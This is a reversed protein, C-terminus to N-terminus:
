SAVAKLRPRKREYDYIYDRTRPVADLRKTMQIQFVMLGQRRFSVEAGALYIDWMRCFREDYLRRVEDRRANFRERWARLTDAYHLRLIEVDTVLLGAREIAPLVESLAPCYGGPFIYKRIWPSTTAPGDFRGIAHLVAVGDEALLDRVKGFFAGYHPVGVHEFMGVSVIRDYRGTEKRYDQLRFRVRATLGADAARRQAVDFQETSLTLGDVQVGSERALSLALGGWGSGIDLVKQGPRLLLKAALHRKKAEQAEELTMDPRAFYACSYQRDADLFLEYLRGSLDYHHAVNRRSRGQRNWQQIRRAGRQTAAALRGLRAGKPDNLAVLDLLPYPDGGEVELDGDMIAEPALLTPNLPLTWELSRKKLRVAVDPGPERGQYTERRGDAYTATLSGVRILSRLLRPLLM